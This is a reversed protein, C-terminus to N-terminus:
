AKRNLLLGERAPRPDSRPAARYVPAPGAAASFLAQLFGAGSEVARRLVARNVTAERVLDAAARRLARRAEDLRPPLALELAPVLAEIGLEPDGALAAIQVGRSRRLEQLRLLLRSMAEVSADLARADGSGVAARQEILTERLEGAAEAERELTGTLERLAAALVHPPADCRANLPGDPM